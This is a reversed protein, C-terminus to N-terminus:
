VAGGTTAVAVEVTALHLVGREDGGGGSWMKEVEALASPGRRGGRWRRLLWWSERIWWGLHKKGEAGGRVVILLDWVVMLHCCRYGWPLCLRRGLVEAASLPESRFEALFLLLFHVRKRLLHPPFHLFAIVIHDPIEAILDPDGSSDEFNPHMVVFICNAASINAAGNGDGVRGGGGGGGIDRFLVLAVTIVDALMTSNSAARFIAPVVDVVAADVIILLLITLTMVTVVLTAMSIKIEVKIM